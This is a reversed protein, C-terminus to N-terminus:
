GVVDLCMQERIFYKGGKIVLLPFTSVSHAESLFGSFNIFQLPFYSIWGIMCVTDFVTDNWIDVPVTRQCQVITWVTYYSWFKIVFILFFFWIIQPNLGDIRTATDHLQKLCCNWNPCRSHEVQLKHFPNHPVLARECINCGDNKLDVLNLMNQVWNSLSLASWTADIVLDSLIQVLCPFCCKRTM